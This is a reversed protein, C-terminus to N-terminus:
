WLLGWARVVGAAQEQGRDGRDCATQATHARLCKQICVDYSPSGCVLSLDKSGGLCGPGPAATHEM